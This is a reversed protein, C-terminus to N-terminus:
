GSPRFAGSRAKILKSTSNTGGPAASRVQGCPTLLALGLAIRTRDNPYEALKLIFPGLEPRTLFKYRQQPRRKLTRRLAHAPNGLTNRTRTAYDFVAAAYQRTKSATELAGRKEIAQLAAALEAATVSDVPRAGIRPFLEQELFTRV